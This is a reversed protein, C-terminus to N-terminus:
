RTLVIRIELGSEKFSGELSGDDSVKLIGHYKKALDQNYEGQFTITASVINLDIDYFYKMIGKHTELVNIIKHTIEEKM